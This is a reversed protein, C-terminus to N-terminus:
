IIRSFHGFRDPLPRPVTSFEGTFLSRVFLVGCFQPSTEIQLVPSVNQFFITYKNCMACVKGRHFAM